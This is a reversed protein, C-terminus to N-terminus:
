WAAGCGAFALTAALSGWAWWRAGTAHFLRDRLTPRYSQWEGLDACM